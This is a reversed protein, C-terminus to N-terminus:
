KTSSLARIMSDYSKLTGYVVLIDGASIVTDSGIAGIVVRESHQLGLLNRATRMQKITIIDLNYDASLASEKVTMGVLSGPAVFQMIYHSPDIRYSSLFDGFALSQALVEAGDKEPFVVREVGLTQLVGIHLPNLGRAIIRKVGVRRLQAVTQISAAFNEGIAVIVVDVESLPLVTLADASSADLCVTGSLSEKLAETRASDADAGIVEHGMETLRTSLLGGFNGLGIVIYKM